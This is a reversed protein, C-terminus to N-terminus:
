FCIRIMEFTILHSVLRGSWVIFYKESAVHRFKCSSKLVGMKMGHFSKIIKLGIM